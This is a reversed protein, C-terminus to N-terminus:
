LSDGGWADFNGIPFAAFRHAGADEASRAATVLNTLAESAGRGYDALQTVRELQASLAASAAQVFQGIYPADALLSLPEAAGLALAPHASESALSGLSAASQRVADPMLTFAGAPQHQPEPM